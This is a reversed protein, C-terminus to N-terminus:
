YSVFVYSKKVEGNGLNLVYYYTGVPVLGNGSTRRFQNTGDWWARDATEWFELNGYQAKEFVKNGLQDFIYMRANPFNVLCYIVFYDHIRDNNPTFINPIFLDCDRGHDLYEPSGDFDVDDNSFDGDANLDEFRTLYLDDDDNEDRWDPLGDGDFDQLEATSGAANGSGSYRNVTDYADDLGDRDSDKGYATRDAKGDANLDHGEIYDPVLDNDSDRDQFDPIGDTDSDAPVISIGQQDPDFADDLGDLDVDLNLPRIFGFANQAEVFDVIGDNDSDIDLYDAVGDGDTDKQFGGELSTSIGDGDADQDLEDPVGDCDQDAFVTLVVQATDGLYHFSDYIAYSFSDIGTFTQDKQYEFTGDQFLRLSGHRPHELPVPDLYFAEGDPDYDNEILSAVLLNCGLSFEDRGAVPPFDPQSITFTKESACGNQDSVQVTYNGADLNELDESTAGNSWEFGYAGTGGSVTLDIKGKRSLKLDIGTVVGNIEIKEPQSVVASIFGSACANVEISLNSYTGASVLVRAEGGSFNVDRVQGGEYTLSYIGDPINEGSFYISGPEGFCVSNEVSLIALVPVQPAPSIFVSVAESECNTGSHKLQVFHTGPELHEFIAENQYSTGDIRYEVGDSKQGDSVVVTGQQSNCDPHIVSEIQPAAPIEYLTLIVPTRSRSRCFQNVAEAYWTKTGTETLVPFDTKTGGVPADYWDITIGSVPIMMASADLTQVPNRACETLNGKSVPSEPIEPAAFIRIGSIESGCGSSINRVKVSYNGSVLGAFLPESQFHIGDLSYELTEGRPSTIRIKGTPVFCDPQETVVLPVEPIGPLETITIESSRIECSAPITRLIVSYTGPLLDGFQTSKQFHFGDLSYEYLEGLPAVVEIAGFRLECDPQHVLKVVPKEPIVPASRISQNASVLECGSSIERLKVSYEGSPLQAFVPSQQFNVADVSYEYDAGLPAYVEISGLSSTCDPQSAVGVSFVETIEPVSNVSLEVPLSECGRATEIAKVVYSGPLLGAFVPSKQPPKGNLSYEYGDGIPESFEITGEPLLCGPQFVVRAEARIAAPEVVTVRAILPQCRKEDSVSVTYIGPALGTAAATTQRAPDDWQYFYLGLGGSATVRASGSAGACDPNSVLVSLNIKAPAAPMTGSISNSVCGRSDNVKFQFTKGPQVTFTGVGTYVGSGGSAQITVTGIDDPCKPASVTGTAVIKEPAPMTFSITESCGNADSVTFNRREGAALIFTGTGSYIGTGGSASIEVTGSTGACQPETSHLSLALKQPERVLLEGLALRKGPIFKDRLIPFYTGAQLQTFDPDSQWTEGADISYEFLAAGSVRIFSIMGDGSGKCRIDAAIVDASLGGALPVNRLLSLKCEPAFADRIWILQNGSALGSFVTATTWNTEDLSYQYAGSGGTAFAISISGDNAGSYNEPTAIVSFNLIEPQRLQVTAITSFHAPNDADRVGLTYSQAPLGSFYSSSQWSLGGNISFEFRDAGRTETFNLTGNQAQYCDPNTLTYNSQIAGAPLIVAPISQVCCDALADRIEIVYEGPNLRNFEPSKQWDLGGIRYEYEGSGGTPHTVLIAGDESNQVLQNTVVLKADLKQPQAIEVLPLEVSCFNLDQILLRDYIGAALGTFTEDPQWNTGGDLSYRFPAQGNEPNSITITGNIGGFCDVDTHYVAAVIPEPQEIEAPNFTQICNPSNSDRMQLTYKGAILNQPFEASWNGGNVSYEYNGSGGQQNQIQIEGDNGGFCTVPKPVIEARLLEPQSVEVEAFTFVCNGANADRMRIIYIGSSLEAFDPASQWRIGDLSLEYNGSGGQRNQVSLAGDTGGFCSVPTIKVTASLPVPESIVITDVITECSILKADRMRVLYTSSKLESFSGSTEWNAGDLSFEYFGSGSQPNTISITGDNGLCTANSSFVIASLIEPEIIQIIELDQVCSNADRMRVPYFNPSLGTFLGNESWNLGDISFQFPAIGNRPNTISIIGDNSGFCSIDEKGVDAEPQIPETIELEAIFGSCDPSFSDRLELLYKGATLGPFASGTQWNNGDISFEYSGSGGIPQFASILGDNGGFCSVNTFSYSAHLKEPESIFSTALKVVCANAQEDRMFVQYNGARLNSFPLENEPIWADGDLSFEYKGSGNRPESVSIEGDSGGFCSVHTNAVVASLEEPKNILVLGIEETCDPTNADRIWVRFTGPELGGFFGNSWTEGISFEYSGSGGHPQVVTITGDNGLCTADTFRVVATLQEPEVIVIESLIISCDSILADRMRVEYKGPSLNPFEQSQSWNEEQVTFEYNGSGGKPETITVMGDNAGFCRINTGSVMAELRVLNLKVFSQAPFCTSSDGLGEAYVTLFIEGSHLDAQGPIYSAQLATSDDFTGDGSTSWLLTRVNKATAENLKVPIGSCSTIPNGAFVQAQDFVTVKGFQVEGSCFEQHEQVELVYVGNTNWILDIFNATSHQMIGNIKWTYTSENLGSVWYRRETGVCVNEPLAIQAQVEISCFFLLCAYGLRLHMFLRLNNSNSIFQVM